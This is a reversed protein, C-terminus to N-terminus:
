LISEFTSMLIFYSEHIRPFASTEVAVSSCIRVSTSLKDVVGSIVFSGFDWSNCFSKRRLVVYFASMNPIVDSPSCGSISSIEIYM